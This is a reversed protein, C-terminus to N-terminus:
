AENTYEEEKIEVNWCNNRVLGNLIGRIRAIEILEITENTFTATLVADSTFENQFDELMDDIIALANLEKNTFEIRINNSFKM